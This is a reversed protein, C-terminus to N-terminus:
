SLALIDLGLESHGIQASSIFTSLISEDLSSVDPWPAPSNIHLQSATFAQLFLCYLRYPIALMAEVLTLTSFRVWLAPPRGGLLGM